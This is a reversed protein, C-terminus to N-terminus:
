KRGHLETVYMIRMAMEIKNRCNKRLFIPPSSRHTEYQADTKDDYREKREDEDRALYSICLDPEFIREEPKADRADQEDEADERLDEEDDGIERADHRRRIEYEQEEDEDQENQPEIQANVQRLGIRLEFLERLLEGDLFELTIAIIALDLFLFVELLHIDEVLVSRRRHTIMSFYAHAACRDNLERRLVRAQEHLKEDGGNESTEQRRFVETRESDDQHEQVEEDRERVHADTCGDDLILIEIIPVVPSEERKRDDESERECRQEACYGKRDGEEEAVILEYRQTADSRERQEECCQVHDGIPEQQFVLAEQANADPQEHDRDNRPDDGDDHCESAPSNIREDPMVDDSAGDREEPIVECAGNPVERHM